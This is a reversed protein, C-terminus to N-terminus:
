EISRYYEILERKRQRVLNTDVTYDTVSLGNRQRKGVGSHPLKYGNDGKCKLIERYVSKLVGDIRALISPDYMEYARKVNAVLYKIDPSQLKLEDTRRQLSNFFCLDNKNLDPSQAPQYKM